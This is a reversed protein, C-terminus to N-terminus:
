HVDVLDVVDVSTWLSKGGRWGLYMGRGTKSSEPWCKPTSTSACWCRKSMTKTRWSWSSSATATPPHNPTSSAGSAPANRGSRSSPSSDREPKPAFSEQLEQPDVRGTNRFTVLQFDRVGEPQVVWVVARAVGLFPIWIRRVGDQSDIARAVANFDAHLPLAVTALLLTALLLRKTM